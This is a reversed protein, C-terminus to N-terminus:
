CFGCPRINQTTLIHRLCEHRGRRCGHRRMEPERPGRMEAVREQRARFEYRSRKTLGHSAVRCASTGAADLSTEVSKPLACRRSVLNPRMKSKRWCLAYRKM